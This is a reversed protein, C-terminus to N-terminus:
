SVCLNVSFKGEFLLILTVVSLIIVYPYNEFPLMGELPHIELFIRKTIISNVKHERIIKESSEKAVLEQQLALEGHCEQVLALFKSKEVEVKLRLLHYPAESQLDQVGCPSQCLYTLM